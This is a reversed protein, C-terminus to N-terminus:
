ITPCIVDHLSTMYVALHRETSLLICHGRTTRQSLRISGGPPPIVWDIETLQQM